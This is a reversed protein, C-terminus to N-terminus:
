EDIFVEGRRQRAHRVGGTIVRRAHPVAPPESTAITGDGAQRQVLFAHEDCVVDAVEESEHGATADVRPIM